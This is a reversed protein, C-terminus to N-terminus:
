RRRQHAGVAYIISGDDGAVAYDYIDAGPEIVHDEWSPTNVISWEM